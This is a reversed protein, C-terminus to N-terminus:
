TKTMSVRGDEGITWHPNYAVEWAHGDPDSFYGSYGGWFVEEPQKLITAGRDKLQSFIADVEEKSRANYALAFGQYATDGSTDLAANLDKALEAHPYLSFVLGGLDFFAIESPGPAAKWGVVDEYFAVARTLDAVGLTIMTLRQEM